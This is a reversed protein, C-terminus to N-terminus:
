GTASDRQGRVFPSLRDEECGLLNVCEGIRDFRTIAGEDQQGGIAPQSPTLSRAQPNWPDVEEFTSDVDDLDQDLDVPFMGKSAGLGLSRSCQYANRAKDGIEEGKLDGFVRIRVATPKEHERGILAARKASRVESAPDPNRSDLGGTEGGLGGEMRKPMGRGRPKNVRPGVWQLDGLLETVPLDGRCETDIAVEERANLRAEVREELRSM